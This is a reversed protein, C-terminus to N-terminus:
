NIVHIDLSFLAHKSPSLASDDCNNAAINKLDRPTPAGTESEHALRRTPAFLRAKAHFTPPYRFPFVVANADSRCADPFQPLCACAYRRGRGFASNIFIRSAKGQWLAGTPGRM